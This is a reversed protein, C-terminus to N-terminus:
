EAEEKLAGHPCTEADTCGCLDCPDTRFYEESPPEDRGGAFYASHHTITGGCPCEETNTLPQYVLRYPGIHLAPQPITM